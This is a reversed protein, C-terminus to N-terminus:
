EANAPSVPAFDREIKGVREILQRVGSQDM